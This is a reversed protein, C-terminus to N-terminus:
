TAQPLSAGGSDQNGWGTSHLSLVSYTPFDNKNISGQKSALSCGTLM